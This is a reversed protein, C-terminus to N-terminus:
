TMSTTASFAMINDVDFYFPAWSHINFLHAGKRYRKPESFRVEGTKYDPVTDEAESEQEQRSLEDALAYRYIDSFDVKKHMLEGVPTKKILKGEYEAASFYLTDGKYAFDQAGYRTSTIQYLERAAPDFHYFENVGTRDSTFTVMDGKIDLGTIKVPQPKLLVTWNGTFANNEKDYEVAYLGYGNESIGTLYITGNDAWASEMIQLSDPASKSAVKRGGHSDLVALHSRGDDSYETVSLMNGKPFPNYMCGKRTLSRKRGSPLKKYRILSNVKQGWRVDSVTESWFICGNERSHRLRSTGYAFAGVRKEQGDTETRVLEPSHTMGNRVSYLADGTMDTSTYETYRSPTATVASAGIFPKRAEIDKQWTAHLTDAIESYVESMKKGTRDKVVTDFGGLDYPRKGIHRYFDGVVDKYGYVYRVGGVMLYGAAYQDLFYNRQSGFRWKEWNRFDGKDYAIMYYNMFDASRGRGSRTLATEAVVADGELMEIRPYLGAVLGNFMEGVVYKM